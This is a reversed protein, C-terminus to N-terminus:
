LWVTEMDPREIPRRYSVDPYGLTLAAVVRERRPVGLLARVTGSSNAAVSLMGNYCTAVPITEAYIVANQAALWADAAFEPERKPVTFALLTGAHFFLRDHGDGRTVNALGHVIVHWQDPSRGLLRWLLALGPLRALRHLRRYHRLMAARIRAIREEDTVVYARVRRANMASPACSAAAVIARMHEPSVPGPRYVRRSRRAQLLALMREPEIGAPAAETEGDGRGRMTIAGTPCVSYCHGCEICLRNAEPTLSPGLEIIGDPCVRACLDCHRCRGEDISVM